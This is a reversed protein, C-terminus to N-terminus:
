PGEPIIHQTLIGNGFPSKIYLHVTAPGI